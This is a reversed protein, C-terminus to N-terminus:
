DTGVLNSSCARQPQVRTLRTRVFLETSELFIPIVFTTYKKLSLFSSFFVQRTPTSTKYMCVCMYM